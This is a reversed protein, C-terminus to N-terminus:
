KAMESLRTRTKMLSQKPQYTAPVDEGFVYYQLMTPDIDLVYDAWDEGYLDVAREETPIWRLTLQGTGNREVAYVSKELPTKVLVVEQKPLVPTGLEMTPLTADTVWVVESWDDVYTFFTATNWFPRRTGEETVLYVTSYGFGRIYQGPEVVSIREAEGTLPSVGYADSLPATNLSEDGGGVNGDESSTDEEDTTDETDEVVEESPTVSILLTDSIIETGLDYMTVVIQVDGEIGDAVEWSLADIKELGGEQYLENGEADLIRVKVDTGGNGSIEWQTLVDDGVMYETGSVPSLFDLEHSPRDAGENSSQRRKVQITLTQIDYLTGNSARVTVIYFNDTNADTPSNFDPAPNFTLVGTVPDIDFDGNDETTGSISYSLVGSPLDYAEVTTVYERGDRTTKTATLMGGNSTIYVCNADLSGDNFSWGFDDIISQRYTEACYNLSSTTFTLGSQLTQQSWLELMKDYNLISFASFSMIQTIETVNSVDWGSVDPNALDADFFAYAIDTVSSTDWNSVDPEALDAGYFIYGMDEVDAMDWGSVDPNAAAAERFLLSADVLSSTTWNSVDPNALDTYSFMGAMTTVNQVDWLSVDPTAANAGSFLQIMNEVNSVDWGSVDPNVLPADRFMRQMSVVNSLGPVDTANIVLNSAGYFAGNMSTWKGTGWQEVTLIKDKDNASSNHFFIAPFGTGDGANDEIRITYTGAGTNLGTAGYDCTYNGTVGTAEDSGDDNCDINYNYTGGPTPILMETDASGGTNDTKVTIVFDDTGAAQVASTFGFLGAVMGGVIVGGKLYSFIRTNM